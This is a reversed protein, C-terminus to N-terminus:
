SEAQQKRERRGRHYWFWLACQPDFLLRLKPGFYPELLEKGLCSWKTCGLQVSNLIIERKIMLINFATGGCRLRCFDLGLKGCASLSDSVGGRWHQVACLQSSLPTHLRTGFCLLYVSSTAVLCICNQQWTHPCLCNAPFVLVFFLSPLTTSVILRPCFVQKM